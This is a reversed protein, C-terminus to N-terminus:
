EHSHTFHDSRSTNAFFRQRSGRLGFLFGECASLASGHGRNGSKGQHMIGFRPFVYWIVVFYVWHGYIYWNVTFYELHGYLIGIPQLINWISKFYVSYKGNWPGGLLFRLWIFVYKEFRKMLDEM